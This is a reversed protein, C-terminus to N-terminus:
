IHFRLNQFKASDLRFRFCSEAFDTSDLDMRTEVFDRRIKRWFVFDLSLFQGM